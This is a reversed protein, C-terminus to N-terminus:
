KRAKVVQISSKFIYAGDETKDAELKFQKVVDRAFADIDVNKDEFIPFGKIFTMLLSMDTFPATIDTTNVSIDTCGLAELFGTYKDDKFSYMDIRTRKNGVTWRESSAVSERLHHIFDNYMSPLAFLLAGNKALAEYVKHLAVEQQKAWHLSCFAIVNTYKEKADLQLVDRCQYEIGAGPYHTQAFEIMAESKDIADVRSDQGHLSNYIHQTLRGTGCGIDLVISNEPFHYDALLKEAIRQQFYSGQEYSHASWSM